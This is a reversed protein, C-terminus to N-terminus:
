IVGLAVRQIPFLALVTRTGLARLALDLEAAGLEVLRATIPACPGSWDSVPFLIVM